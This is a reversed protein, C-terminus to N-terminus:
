KELIIFEVRRNLERGRATLNPAIPKSDGYGVSEVRTSDIGQAVLFDAVARARNESLTQNAAKMGRNDTHGDVRVRKVGSRVIADVVQQLLGYSDALITAKGTAFHVQQLIDIKDGKIVVLSRKPAPVLEFNVAMSAGPAAQVDRTQSLFGEATTTLSYAGPLLEKSVAAASTEVTELKAQEPGSFAVTAKVPKQKSLTTVDFKAKKIDEELAVELSAGGIKPDLTADREAPKFGDKTISLKVGPGALELTLFEGTADTAVPKSGAPTVIVNAIPKGGAATVIRGAVRLTSPAKAVEVKREAITELIKTEGRQFPDIAFAAGFMFNWPPTAALGLGVNRTLGINAGATLTLDKIATVKLGAGLIQPMAQGVPVTAGDPGPLTGNAVGLPAGLSYELYPTVVPLPIELAAGFNFRNFRNVSLAYEESANLRQNTVLGATTDLTVGVMATALLPVNESLTRFDYTVLATPKFGFAFRDFGQNGVGSFTLLRLDVGAHFGKVWERSAKIGLTLDGLAQILNPSTRNNSNASAGYAVFVEGWEFPQFSAAFTVASRIDIASKVPFDTINFYEGVLSVRVIGQMGLRASPVLLTGIGSQGVTVRSNLRNTFGNGWTSTSHSETAPLIREKQSVVSAAPRPDGAEVLKSGVAKPASQADPSLPKSPTPTKPTAAPPFKPTQAPPPATNTPAPSGGPPFTNWDSQARALLPLCLSLILMPRRTPFRMSLAFIAPAASTGLSIM